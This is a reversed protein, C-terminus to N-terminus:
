KPKYGRDMVPNFCWPDLNYSEAIQELMSSENEHEEQKHQYCYEAEERRTCRNGTKTMGQCQHLTKTKAQAKGKGKRKEKQEKAEEPEEEWVQFLGDVQPREKDRRMQAGLVWIRFNGSEDQGYFLNLPGASFEGKRYVYRSSVIAHSFPVVNWIYEYQTNAIKVHLPPGVSQTQPKSYAGSPLVAGRWLKWYFLDIGTSRCKVRYVDIAPKSEKVEAHEFEFDTGNITLILKPGRDLQPTPVIPGLSAGYLFSGGRRTAKPFRVDMEKNIEKEADKAYIDSVLVDIQPPLSEMMLYTPKGTKDFGSPLQLVKPFNVLFRFDESGIRMTRYPPPNSESWKQFVAFIRAPLSNSTKTKTEKLFRNEQLKAGYSTSEGKRMPFLGDIIGNIAKVTQEASKASVLLPVAEQKFDLYVPKGDSEFSDPFRFALREKFIIQFTSQDGVVLVTRYPPPNKTKWEAFAQM